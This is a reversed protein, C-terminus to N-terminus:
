CAVCAGRSSRETVAGAPSRTRGSRREPARSALLLGIRRVVDLQAPNYLERAADDVTRTAAATPGTTASWLGPLVALVTRARALLRVALDQRTPEDADAPLDDFAAAAASPPLARLTDALATVVDPDLVRSMVVLLSRDADTLPADRITAALAPPLDTPVAQHLIQHVEVRVRQLHDLTRTLRADLSRLAEQPYQDADGLDAIQPLSFGLEALRKIRLTRVLHAVGYQKYGNACRRPEDLLGVEHYHRVARVTTGALDALERTSWAV